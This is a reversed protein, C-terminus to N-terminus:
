WVASRGGPDEVVGDLYLALLEVLQEEVLDPFAADFHVLVCRHGVDVYRVGALHREGGAASLGCLAQLEVEHHVGAAGVSWQGALEIHAAVVLEVLAEGDPRVDAAGAGELAVELPRRVGDGELVAPHPHDRELVVEEADSQDYSESTYEPPRQKREPSEAQKVSGSGSNQDFRRM